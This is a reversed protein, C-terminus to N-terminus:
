SDDKKEDSRDAKSDSYLVTVRDGKDLTGSPDVDLVTGRPEDSDPDGEQSVRLGLKKLEDVVDDRDRGVYDSAVVTIGTPTSATTSPPSTTTRTTSPATTTPTATPTGAPASTTVSPTVAGGDGDGTDLLGTAALVAGVVAFAIMALLALLPGTVRRRHRLPPAPAASAAPLEPVPLEATIPLLATAAVDDGLGAAQAADAFAGADVPRDAPDKAMASAVLARVGPPVADPLPDPDSNVHAMAVAVPSEGTFPRRGTLAEYGIVGLAYVDSAPTARHGLAQEPALYQATGMVQGTATLPVQDAARAIGFDTVKLAGDPTVLLNGPKVDRHVVGAAHAASLGRAAQALLDMARWAPLVGERALLADLPEGPVLEMVLYAEADAEGYDYVGAINPHALGAAHRAEARFRDLFGPDGTYEPKLVKVAVERGLVADLAKWVEGMGGVAILESLRYRGGLVRGAEVSM